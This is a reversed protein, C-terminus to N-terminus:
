GNIESGDSRAGGQEESPALWVRPLRTGLGTLIEYGITGVLEAVEDLSIEAGQDSGVFTVTDGVQVGDLGSVDVMTMDMSIRGIIPVTKGGLIGHGRNGLSRSLGDGYGIGVTAWRGPGEARYTSGYGATDGAVVDRVHVVRARVAVVPDPSPLESGVSGGYLFIGPRAAHTEEAHVLLSGASNSFHLMVTEPLPRLQDVTHFFRRKQEDVGPAGPEDASHLHTFCGSWTMDAAAALVAPKWEGVARDSFGSRGMGTDVELQFAPTKGIAKGVQHLSRLGDVTSVSLTLGLVVAREMSWSGVPSFVTVPKSVGLARLEAGEEVTAVGWGWVDESDLAQVVQEVGLGYGNAKVMPVVKTSPGVAHRVM